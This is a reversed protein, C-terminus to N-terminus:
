NEDNRWRSKYNHLIVSLMSKGVALIGILVIAIFVHWPHIPSEEITYGYAEDCSHLHSNTEVECTQCSIEMANMADIDVQKPYESCICKNTIDAHFHIGDNM